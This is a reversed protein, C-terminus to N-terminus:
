RGEEGNSQDSIAHASLKTQRWFGSKMTSTSGNGTLFYIQLINLM